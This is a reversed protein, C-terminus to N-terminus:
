ATRRTILIYVIAIIVPCNLSRFFTLPLPPDDWKAFIIRCYRFTQSIHINEKKKGESFPKQLGRPRALVHRTATGCLPDTRPSSGSTIPLFNKECCAKLINKVQDRKSVCEM